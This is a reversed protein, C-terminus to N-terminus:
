GARGRAQRGHAMFAGLLARAAPVKKASTKLADELHTIADGAIRRAQDASRAKAMGGGLWKHKGLAKAMQEELAPDVAGVQDLLALVRPARDQLWAKFERPRDAHDDPSPRPLTFAEEQRRSARLARRRHKDQVQLWAELDEAAAGERLVYSSRVKSEFAGTIKIPGSTVVYLAMNARAAAELFAQRKGGDTPVTFPHRVKLSSEPWILDRSGAAVKPLWLRAFGDEGGEGRNRTERPPLPPPEKEREKRERSPGTLHGSKGPRKVRNARDFSGIQGSGSEAGRDFSGIQNEAAEKSPGDRDFSRNENETPGNSGTLHGPTSERDEGRVRDNSRTASETGTDSVRALDNSRTSSAPAKGTVAAPIVAHWRNSELRAQGEDLLRRLIRRASKSSEVSGWVKRAIEAVTAGRYKPGIRQYLYFWVNAELPPVPLGLDAREDAHIVAFHFPMQGNKSKFHDELRM